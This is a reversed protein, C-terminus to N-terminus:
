SIIWVGSEKPNIHYDAGIHGYRHIYVCAKKPKIAYGDELEKRRLTNRRMYEQEHITLLTEM